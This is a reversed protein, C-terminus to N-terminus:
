DSPLAPKKQQSGGKIPESKKGNIGGQFGDFYIRREFFEERGEARERSMEGMRTNERLM